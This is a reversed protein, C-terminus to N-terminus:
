GALRLPGALPPRVAGRGGMWTELKELAFWFGAGGDKHGQWIEPIFSAQPCARDLADGIMAFDMMGQGIQLGEGDVDKADAIHLHAAHPGVTECFEKMSWGFHNCALQSHSVDLCVRMGNRRCFGVIEDPDMFLNHYSQGGFHWPFPPMTQPILEIGDRDLIALSEEIRAYHEARLAVPLAGTQSFGGMNVIICPRATRPHWLKLARTLEIVRQLEAISRRRYGADRAALDLTHDGRFLEPAHVVFGVDLPADFWADLPGEMDKYSLHYELLDLNSRGLMARHDHWRVPLGWPRAFRFPRPEALAPALDSPFFPTGATVARHVVRGVLTARYNPQLGQGPSQVGVMADTVVAGAAIDCTAVLSKALVERNMMEGQTLAREGGAGMSVEVARIGQVMTALENPLLSVKHDNGEMGRDATLHKEIVAAGRAVAAVPVTWGREHGSYGVPCGGIEALRDMYKLNVDKYPTPYTSNCHLLCFPAGRAKLLAVSEKIEAESSMGTSCILPKGTAALRALFDHNTLDASAVKYGAIEYRELAELSPVDWPTCLPEIGRARAHDFLRFLDDAALNFRALLDMTYQAGLDEADSSGSRGYLSSLDRLQFKACDAGAAHAADILARALAVDGNHNNGIEAIVYAPQGKGITRRGIVLEASRPLAIAVVRRYEDLMPVARVRESFMASVEAPAADVSVTACATNAIQRVPLDLDIPDASMLWRRIDGDTIMGTVHGHETVAVVFGLKNASIKNLASVVPDEAFVVFRATNRDIFM